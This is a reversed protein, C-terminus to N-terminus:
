DRSLYILYGWHDKLAARYSPRDHYALGNEKCFQQVMPQVKKYHVHSLWPFLHHEIQFNLGGCYWNWFPNNTAFNASTRLQHIAWEDSMTGDLEMEPFIQDESLHALIFITTVLASTVMLVIAAGILAKEWGLMYVPAVFFWVAFLAKFGWFRAHDYFSMAPLPVSSTRRLVYDRYDFGFIWVPYYLLYMLPAYYPQFRHWWLLPQKKTLRMFPYYDIDGDAGHINTFAHHMDLHRFKWIFSDGGLIGMTYGAAQNVWKKPSFCGHQGDHMVNFGIAIQNLAFVVCGVAAWWGTIWQGVLLAYLLLHFALLSLAKVVIRRGGYRTQGSQKLYTEVQQLLQPYQLAPQKFKPQAKKVQRPALGPLLSTESQANSM